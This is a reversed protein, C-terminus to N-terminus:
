RRKGGKKKKPRYKAYIRALNVQRKTRTDRSKEVKELDAKSLKEDGKIRGRRKAKARLAGPHRNAKAMWKRAM